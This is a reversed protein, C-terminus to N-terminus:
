YGRVLFPASQVPFYFSTNVEDVEVNAVQLLLAMGLLYLKRSHSIWSSQRVTFSFNEKKESDVNSEDRIKKSFSKM